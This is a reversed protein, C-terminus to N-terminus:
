RDGESVARRAAFVREWEDARPLLGTAVRIAPPRAFWPSTKQMLERYYAQQQHFLFAAEDRYVAYVHIAHPDSRDRALDFRLIGPEVRLSHEVEATILAIFEETREPRLFLTPMLIHTM